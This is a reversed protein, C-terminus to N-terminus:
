QTMLDNAESDNPKTELYCTMGSADKEACAGHEIYNKDLGFGTLVAYM